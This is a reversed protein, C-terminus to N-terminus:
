HKEEFSTVGYTMFQMGEEHWADPALGAKMCLQSMFDEADPLEEWVQPLFTAQRGGKRIIVGPKAPLQKFFEDRNVAAPESLVSIEISLDDFEEPQVPLFRIDEFAAAQAFRQVTEALPKDSGFCGICGRLDGEKHLTVFVGSNQKLAVSASARPATIDMKLATAISHRALALLYNRDISSLAPM